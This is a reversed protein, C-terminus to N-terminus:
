ANAVAPKLDFSPIELLARRVSVRQLYDRFPLSRQVVTEAKPETQRELPIPLYAGSM